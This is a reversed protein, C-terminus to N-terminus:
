QISNGFLICICKSTQIIKELDSVLKTIKSAHCTAIFYCSLVMATGMAFFLADTRKAITDAEYIVYSSMGLNGFSLICITLLIRIIRYWLITNKEEIIGFCKSNRKVLQFTEMKFTIKSFKDQSQSYSYLVPQM